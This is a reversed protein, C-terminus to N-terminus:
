GLNAEKLTESLGIMKQIKVWGKSTSKVLMSHYVTNWKGAFEVRCKVSRPLSWQGFEVLLSEWQGEREGKGFERCLELCRSKVEFLRYVYAKSECFIAKKKREKGKTKQTKSNRSKKLNDNKAKPYVWTQLKRSKAITPRHALTQTKYNNNLHYPLCPPWTPLTCHNNGKCPLEQSRM